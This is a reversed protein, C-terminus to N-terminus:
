KINVWGIKRFTDDLVDLLKSSLSSNRDWCLQLFAILNHLTLITAHYSFYVGINFSKIMELTSM